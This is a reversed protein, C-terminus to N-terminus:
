IMKVTNGKALYGLKKRKFLNFWIDALKNHLSQYPVKVGKRGIFIYYGRGLFRVPKIAMKNVQERLNGLDKTTFETKTLETLEGIGWNDTIRWKSLNNEIESNREM